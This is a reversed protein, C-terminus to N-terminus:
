ETKGEANVTKAQVAKQKAAIDEFKWGAAQAVAMNLQLVNVIPGDGFSIFEVRSNADILAELKEPSVGTMRSVYPVQYRAAKVSIDPDLGSGSATALDAPVPDQSGTMIQWRETREKVTKQYDPTSVSMNSAGSSKGNYDVVSPRGEFLGTDTWDQGIMASGAPRGEYTLMSGNAQHPFGKQAVGTVVAPYVLGLVVSLFILVGFGQALNKVMAGISLDTAPELQKDMTEITMAKDFM